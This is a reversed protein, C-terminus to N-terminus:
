CWCRVCYGNEWESKSVEPIQISHGVMDSIDRTSTAWSLRNTVRESEVVGVVTKRHPLYVAHILTTTHNDNEDYTFKRSNGKRKEGQTLRDMWIQRITRVFSQYRKLLRIVKDTDVGTPYADYRNSGEPLVYVTKWDRMTSHLRDSYPYLSELTEKGKLLSRLRASLKISRLFQTTEDLTDFQIGAYQPYRKSIEFKGTERNKYAEM